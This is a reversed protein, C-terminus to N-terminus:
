ANSDGEEFLRLQGGHGDGRSDFFRIPCGYQDGHGRNFRFAHKAFHETSARYERGTEKDIVVIAIANPRVETDFAEADIAWAPPRILRHRSGVVQKIFRNGELYGIVKDGVKVLRKEKRSNTNCYIQVM